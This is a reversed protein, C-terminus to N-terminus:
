GKKDVRFKSEVNERKKSSKVNRTVVGDFHVEKPVTYSKPSLALGITLNCHQMSSIELQMLTELQTNMEGIKKVDEMEENIDIPAHRFHMKPVKNIRAVLIKPLPRTTTEEENLEL